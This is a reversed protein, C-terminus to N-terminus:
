LAHMIIIVTTTDSELIGVGGLTGTYLTGDIWVRAVIVYDSRPPLAIPGFGADADSYLSAALAGSEGGERVEVFVRGHPVAPGSITIWTEGSLYGLTSTVPPPAPPTGEASVTVQLGGLENDDEFLEMVQRQSDVTATIAFSGTVTFGSDLPVTVPVTESIALTSVAAWAGTMPVTSSLDVWFLNNAPRNLVKITLLDKNGGLYIGLM